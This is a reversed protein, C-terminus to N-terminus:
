FPCDGDEDLEIRSSKIEEVCDDCRHESYTEWGDSQANDKLIADLHRWAYPGRDTSLVATRFSDGCIDCDIMVFLKFM